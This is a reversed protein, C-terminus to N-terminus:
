SDSKNLVDLALVPHIPIIYPFHCRRAPHTGHNEHVVVANGVRAIPVVVSVQAKACRLLDGVTGHVDDPVTHEIGEAIWYASPASARGPTRGIPSAEIPARRPWRRRRRFPHRLRAPRARARRDTPLLRRQRLALRRHRRMSATGITMSVNRSARVTRCSNGRTQRMRGNNPTAFPATPSASPAMSFQAWRLWHFCCEALCCRCRRSTRWRM